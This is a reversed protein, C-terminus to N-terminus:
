TSIETHARQQARQRVDNEAAHKQAAVAEERAEKELGMQRLTTQQHREWGPQVLKRWMIWASIAVM